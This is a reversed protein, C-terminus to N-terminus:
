VGVNEAVSEPVVLAYPDQETVFAEPTDVQVRVENLASVFVREIVAGTVFDSPVTIKVAPVGTAAFEFIVPEDGTMAFPDAVDVIM